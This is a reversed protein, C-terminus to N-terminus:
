SNAKPQLPPADLSSRSLPRTQIEAPPEAVPEPPSPGAPLAPGGPPALGPEALIPPNSDSPAERATVSGRVIVPDAWPGTVNYEYALAKSIPNRLLEQFVLTGLGIAPNLFAYALSGAGLNIQPLVKVHLSQTENKLDASGDMQVIASSGRMEFDQSSAVGNKISAKAKISDFAFGNAFVDSFDFTLRRQMSQLSLVGLLKGIGPDVKLFEGRGVDLTLDGSLTNTDISLPTGQWVINGQVTATGDKVTNPQGLRELLGGLNKADLTLNMRTVDGSSTGQGGWSGKAALTADPNTLNLKDLRWIHRNASTTVNAALLELRGLKHGGLEFDDSIVDLAPIQTPSSDPELLQGVDKENSSPVILRELRATLRNQQADASGSGDRWQIRGAVETSSLTATWQDSTHTANLNVKEFHKDFIKLDDVRAVLADPVFANSNADRADKGVAPNSATANTGLQDLVEKWADADLASAVLNANARAASLNAPGNLAYAIHTIQLAGSADADRAFAANFFSGFHVDIQDHTKSPNDRSPNILVTLPMHSAAPKGAPEPLDIAIGDLDSDVQIRAGHSLAQADSAGFAALNMAVRYGTSGSLRPALREVFPFEPVKALAQATITGQGRLEIVHDTATNADLKIDGGLFKGTLNKLALSNQTFNLDGRVGELAPLWDFLTMDCNALTLKGAVEMKEINALPIQLELHMRADGSARTKDTLHALMEGLPSENVFRVYSQTAGMVDASLKVAARRDGVDTVTVTMKNIDADEIRASRMEGTMLDRDLVLSGDASTLPPWALASSATGSSGPAPPAYAMTLDHLKADIHFVENADIPVGPKPRFPFREMPGRVTFHTDNATGSVLARAMYSRAEAGITVPMYRALQHIDKLDIHGSLDVYGPGRSGSQPGHRYSGSAEMSLDANSLDLHELHVTLDQNVFQWNARAHFTDAPIEGREFVAPLDLVADKGVINITGQADSAVINGDLNRFGSTGDSIDIDGDPPPQGKIGLGKFATDLRFHEPHEISGNWRYTFQRLVGRPALRILAERPEKGIPLDQGIAGLTDLSLSDAHLQGGRALGKADIDQEADLNTNDLARGGDTEIQVNALKLLDRQEGQTASIRGTVHTLSLQPLDSSVQTVVNALVIDAVGAPLRTVRGHREALPSFKLWARVAGAGKSLNVPLDFYNHWAALDIYDVKMYLEGSWTDSDSQDGFLSHDFYGRLDLPSALEGPPTFALAFRHRIGFRSILLYAQSFSLKPARRMDDTWSLTGGRIVIRRQDLLWDTMGGGSNSSGQDIAIGGVTVVGNSLRKVDLDADDIELRHLRVEFTLFSDWSLTAETQPLDLALAGTKDFVRVDTLSLRPRLGDWDAALTGITVKTNLEASVIQEIDGRYDGAHPLVLYRLVLVAVAFLLYLGFVLVGALRV